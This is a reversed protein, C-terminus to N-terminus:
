GADPLLSATLSTWAALEPATLPSGRLYEDLPPDGAEEPPYELPPCDFLLHAPLVYGATCCVAISARLLATALWSRGASTRDSM